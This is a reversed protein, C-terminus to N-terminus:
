LLRRSLKRTTGQYARVLLGVGIGVGLCISLGIGVGVRVGANFWSLEGDEGDLYEIEQYRHHGDPTYDPQHYRSQISFDDKQSQNAEYEPISELMRGRRMQKKKHHSSLQLTKTLVVPRGLFSGAVYVEVAAENQNGKCFFGDNALIDSEYCSMSWSMGHNKSWSEIFGHNECLELTGCLVLVNEDFVEFRVSGTTRVSDTSVFTVEESRRDLRDRKLLTSVGDSYISTRVGNIELLTERNLPVHNFTLHEPTSDDDDEIVCKSIRVYFVRLDFWPLFLKTTSPNYSPHRIISHSNEEVGNENFDEEDSNEMDRLSILVEEEENFDM